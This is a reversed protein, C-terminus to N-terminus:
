DEYSKLLRGEIETKYEPYPSVVVFDEKVLSDEGSVLYALSDTDDIFITGSFNDLPHRIRRSLTEGFDQAYRVYVGKEQIYEEQVPSASVYCIDLDSGLYFNGRAFSGYVIVAVIGRGEGHERQKQLISANIEAFIGSVVEDKPKYAFEIERPSVATRFHNDIEDVKLEAGKNIIDLLRMGAKAYNTSYVLKVAPLTEAFFVEKGSEGCVEEFVVSIIDDLTQADNVKLEEFLKTAAAELTTEATLTEGLLSENTNTTM